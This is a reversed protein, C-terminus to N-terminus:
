LQKPTGVTRSHSSLTVVMPSPFHLGMLQHHPRRIHFVRLSKGEHSIAADAKDADRGLQMLQQQQQLCSSSYNALDTYNAGNTAM